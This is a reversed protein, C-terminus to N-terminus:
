VLFAQGDHAVQTELKERVYRTYLHLSSRVKRRKTETYFCTMADRVVGNSDHYFRM